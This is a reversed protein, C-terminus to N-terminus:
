GLLFCFMSVAGLLELVFSWWSLCNRDVGSCLWMLFGRQLLWVLLQAICATESRRHMLGLWRQETVGAKTNCSIQHTPYASVFAVTGMQKGNTSLCGQM